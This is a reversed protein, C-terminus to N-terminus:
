KLYHQFLLKAATELRPALQAFLSIAPSKISLHRAVDAPPGDPGGL